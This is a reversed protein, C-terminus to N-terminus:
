ALIVVSSLSRAGSGWMSETGETTGIGESGAREVRETSEAVSGLVLGVRRTTRM